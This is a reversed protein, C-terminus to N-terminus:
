SAVEARHQAWAASAAATNGSNTPAVWGCTCKARRERDEWWTWGVPKPNPEAAIFGCPKTETDNM